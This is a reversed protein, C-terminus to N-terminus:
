GATDESKSADLVHMWAASRGDSPGGHRVDEPPSQIDPVEHVGENEGAMVGPSPTPITVPEPETALVVPGHGDEAATPRIGKKPIFPALRIVGAVGGDFCKASPRAMQSHFDTFLALNRDLLRKCSDFVNKAYGSPGKLRRKKREHALVNKWWPKKYQVDIHWYILDEKQNFSFLDPNLLSEAIGSEYLFLRRKAKSLRRWGLGFKPFWGLVIQKWNARYPIPHLVVFGLDLPRERNIMWDLAHKELARWLLRLEQPQIMGSKQVFDTLFADAAESIRVEFTPVKAQKRREDEPNWVVLAEPEKNSPSGINSLEHVSILWRGKEKVGRSELFGDVVEVWRGLMPVAPVMAASDNDKEVWFPLRWWGGSIQWLERM